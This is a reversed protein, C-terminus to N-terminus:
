SNVGRPAPTRTRTRLCPQLRAECYRDACEGYCQRSLPTPDGESPAECSARACTASFGCRLSRLSRLKHFPIAQINRNARLSIGASVGPASAVASSTFHSLKSIETRESPSALACVHRQLWLPALSALPAQSHPNSPSTQARLRQPSDCESCGGRTTSSGPPPRGGDLLVRMRVLM